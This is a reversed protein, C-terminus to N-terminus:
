SSRNLFYIAVIGFTGGLITFISPTEGLFFWSSLFASVPVLFIFSSSTKSGLKGSALFYVTTGFSTSIVATYFLNFWFLFDFQFVETIKPISTFPLMAIGSFFYLYLSYSFGSFTKSSRQTILTLVAWTMSACLFFINGSQTIDDLSIEWIKLLFIGACVGFFLGIWENQQVKKRTLLTVFVFTIIPNLTTVLVGGLGPLGSKLGLFFFITYGVYLASGLLTLAFSLKTKPLEFSNTFYVVPLFSVFSLFFRWFMVTAVDSYRVLVKGSPWAIGWCVMAIILILIFQYQKNKDM